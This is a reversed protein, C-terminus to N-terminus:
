KTRQDAISLEAWSLRGRLRIDESSSGVLVEFDGPEVRWQKSQVDYYSLARKDLKLTVRRKEGARLNVKVFGKLEKVPREVKSHRDAVYVQAVEAGDQNGTNAVDFAVEARWNGDSGGKTVGTTVSLNSYAFNTYSLGFGFPFLPKKGSHEYGRYGVFIGEKYVIRQTGDQPYYNDHTPNEEWRREFSVPLRGSPNVQGFLIEALATGGEQGPYWAQLVAPVKDLWSNMDVAGGSTIVIV